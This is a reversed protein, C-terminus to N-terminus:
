GDAVPDPSGPDAEDPGLYFAYYNSYEDSPDLEAAKAFADKSERVLGHFTAPDGFIVDDEDARRRLVEALLRQAMAELVNSPIDEVWPGTAEMHQIGERAHAEADTLRGSDLLVRALELHPEPLRPETRVIARLAEEADDLRGADKDTLAAMFREGLAGLRAQEEADVAGLDQTDTPDTM